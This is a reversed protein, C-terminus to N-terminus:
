FYDAASNSRWNVVERTASSTVQVHVYCVTVEHNGSAASEEKMELFGSDDM